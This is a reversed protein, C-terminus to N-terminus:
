IKLDSSCFRLENRKINDQDDLEFKGLSKLAKIVAEETDDVEEMDGNYGGGAAFGKVKFSAVFVCYSDDPDADFDFDVIKNFKPVKKLAAEIKKKFNAEASEKVEESDESDESYESDESDKDCDECDCGESIASHKKAIELYHKVTDFHEPNSEYMKQKLLGRLHEECADTNEGKYVNRLFEISDM